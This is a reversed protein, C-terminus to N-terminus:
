YILKINKENKLEISFTTREKQAHSTEEVPYRGINMSNLWKGGMIYLGMYKLFSMWDKLKWLLIVFLASDGEMTKIWPAFICWKKKYELLFILKDKLYDLIWKRELFMRGVIKEFVGFFEGSSQAM